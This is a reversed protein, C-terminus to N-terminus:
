YSSEVPPTTARKVARLQAQFAELAATQARQAATSWEQMAARQSASTADLMALGAALSANHVEFSAKLAAETGSAWADFVGRATTFREKSRPATDAAPM